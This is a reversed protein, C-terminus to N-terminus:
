ANVRGQAVGISRQNGQGARKQRSDRERQLMDQVEEPAAIGQFVIEVGGTAATSIEVDGIDLLRELLTQELRISRIDEYRLRILGRQLSLIGVRSEIGRNDIVFRVDYIRIISNMLTVFPIFWWLPLALVLTYGGITFLRGVIVSGPFTNTLFIALVSFFLFLGVGKLESRWVKPIVLESRIM